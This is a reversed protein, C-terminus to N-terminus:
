KEQRMAAKSSLRFSEPLPPFSVLLDLDGSVSVNTEGGIVPAYNIEIDEDSLNIDGAHEKVIDKIESIVAPSEENAVAVMVGERAASSLDLYGKLVWGGNIIGVVLLVIIATKFLFKV